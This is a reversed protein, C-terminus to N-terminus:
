GGVPERSGTYRKILMGNGDFPFTPARLGDELCPRGHKYKGFAYACTGCRKSAAQVMAKCQPCEKLPM